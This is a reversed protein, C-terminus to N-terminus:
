QGLPLIEEDLKFVFLHGDTKRKANGQYTIKQGVGSLYGDKEVPEDGIKEYPILNGPDSFRGSQFGAGKQLELFQMEGEKKPVKQILKFVSVWSLISFSM